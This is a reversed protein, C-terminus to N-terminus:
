RTTAPRRPRCCCSSTAGTRAPPRPRMPPAASCNRRRLSARPGSSRSALVGALPQRSVTDYVIGQPDVPLSQQALTVGPLPTIELARQAGNLASGGAPQRDRWERRRRVRRREPRHVARPLHDGARRERGHVPRDRDVHGHVGRRRHDPEAPRHALGCPRTRRQRPRPRQRPRALRHRHGDRVARPRHAPTPPRAAPSPSTRRTTRRHRHIRRPRHRARRHHRGARGPRSTATATAPSLQTQAAATTIVLPLNGIGPEGADLAGNGNTDDFARGTVLGGLGVPTPDNEGAENPNGDNDADVNNGNDSLDTTSAPGGDVGAAAATASNVFPGPAGNATVRVTFTITSTGAGPLDATGNLLNQNSVGNFGPNATLGGNATPTAQVVFTAPAPFAAALDDVVQVDYAPGLPALNRVTLSFAVDFVGASIATVVAQKAVGIVAGSNVVPTATAQDDEGAIGNAPTSDPDNMDSASVEAVNAYVGTPNARATIVLTASGAAAITGAAWIGTGPVYTGQSPVASVFTFGSPLSDRVAVGTAPDPGDNSVTLTFTVNNGANVAAPAVVNTLSLDATGISVVVDEATSSASAYGSGGVAAGSAYSGGPSVVPNGGAGDTGGTTRTPDSFEVTAPNQYTGAAPANLNANFTLAVSCGAPLAFSGAAAGGGAGLSVPDTGTGTVPSPGAGCAAPAYVPTVAAGDYTFPAPLDDQVALGYATGRGAGNQVTVTYTATTDLGRVRSPTSTSKTVTLQPLCAAGAGTGPTETTTITGTVGASGAVAGGSTGVNANTSGVILGTGGGAVSSTGGGVNSLYVGGGGGGGPGDVENSAVSLVNDGGRGGRALLSLGAPVTGNQVFLVVSGGAGGGGGADATVSPDSSRGNRGDANISGSGTLSGARVLVIGGGAGGSSWQGTALSDNYDGAGGGGGLVVRGLLGSGAYTAAESDSFDDGGYGGLVAGLLNPDSNNYENGGRGGPGGNGGGGGGANHQGGGGGGNAPAGYNFDGFRYGEVGRDVTANAVEDYVFRPTGAIGEGKTGGADPAGVPRRFQLLPGPFAVPQQVAGGGRFGRGAVDITGSISLNGAVDVAAVGGSQGNWRAATLTGTVTASSLQPVRVVQYARKFDSPTGTPVAAAPQQRYAFQLGGGAGGCSVPIAGAAVPGTAICYEYRGANNLATAGRADGNVVGDGYRTGETTSIDADQMQIVILLDGTVVPTAAGGSSLDISGVPVSTAGATVSGTVGPYYSNIVGSLNSPGDRGPIACSQAIADSVPMGLALLAVGVHLLTSRRKMDSKAM